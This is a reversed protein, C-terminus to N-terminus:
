TGISNLGSLYTPGGTRGRVREVNKQNCVNEMVGDYLPFYEALARLTM